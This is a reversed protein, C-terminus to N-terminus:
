AHEEVKRRVEALAQALIGAPNDGEGRAICSVGGRPVAGVFASHGGECDAGAQVDMYIAYGKAVIAAIDDSM